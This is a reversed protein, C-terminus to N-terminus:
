DINGAEPSVHTLYENWGMLQEVLEIGCGHTLSYVFAYM